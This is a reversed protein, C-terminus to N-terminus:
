ICSSSSILLGSSPPLALPAKEGRGPRGTTEEQLRAHGQHEIFAQVYSPSISAQLCTLPVGGAFGAVCYVGLVHKQVFLQSEGSLAQCVVPAFYIRTPCVFRLFMPFVPYESAVLNLSIYFDFLPSALSLQCCALPLIHFTVRANGM